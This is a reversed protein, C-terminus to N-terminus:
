MQQQMAQQQISGLAQQAMYSGQGGEMKGSNLLPAAAQLAAGAFGLFKRTSEARKAAKAERESLANIEAALAACSKEADGPQLLEPAADEARVPGALLAAAFAAAGLGRTVSNMNTEQSGPSPRAQGLTLTQKADVLLM